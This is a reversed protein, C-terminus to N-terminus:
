RSHTGPAAAYVTKGHTGSVIDGARLADLQLQSLEVGAPLDGRYVLGPGSVLFGMDQLDMGRALQRLRQRVAPAQLSGTGGQLPDGIEQFVAALAGAQQELEHRTNKRADLRALALTGLGALVLAALVAGCTAFVIRRRM